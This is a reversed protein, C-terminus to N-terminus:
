SMGSISIVADPPGAVQDAADEKLAGGTTCGAMLLSALIGGAVCTNLRQM